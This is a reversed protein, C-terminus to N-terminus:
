WLALELDSRFYTPRMALSPSSEGIAFLVASLLITNEAIARNATAPYAAAWGVILKDRVRRGIRHRRAIHRAALQDADIARVECCTQSRIESGGAGHQAQTARRHGNAADRRRESIGTGGLEVHLHGKLNRRAHWRNIDRNRDAARGACRYM